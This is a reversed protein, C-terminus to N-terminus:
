IEVMTSFNMMHLANFVGFIVSEHQSLTFFFMLVRIFILSLSFSLIQYFSRCCIIVKKKKKRELLYLFIHSDDISFSM